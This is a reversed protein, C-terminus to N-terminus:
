IDDFVIWIVSVIVKSQYKDEYSKKSQAADERIYQLSILLCNSGTYMLGNTKLYYAHSIMPITSSLVPSDSRTPPKTTCSLAARPLTFAIRSLKM